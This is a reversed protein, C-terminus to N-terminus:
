KKFLWVVTPDKLKGGAGFAVGESALLALKRKIEPGDTAGNFGGISLDAAVV